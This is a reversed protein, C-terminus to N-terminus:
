SDHRAKYVNLNGRGRQEQELIDLKDLAMFYREIKVVLFASVSLAESVDPKTINALMDSLSNACSEEFRSLVSWVQYALEETRLVSADVVGRPVKVGDVIPLQRKSFFDAYENKLAANWYKHIMDPGDYAINLGDFTISVASLIGFNTKDKAISRLLNSSSPLAADMVSSQANAM